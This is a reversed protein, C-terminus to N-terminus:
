RVFLHAYSRRADRVPVSERSAWDLPAYIVDLAAQVFYFRGNPDPTPVIGKLYLVDYPGASLVCLYPLAACMRLARRRWKRKGDPKDPGDSGNTM